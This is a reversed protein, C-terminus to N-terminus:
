KIINNVSYVLVDNNIFNAEGEKLDEIKNLFNAPFITGKQIDGTNILIDYFEPGYISSNGYFIANEAENKIKFKKLNNFNFLFSDPDKNWGGNSKFSKSTYGGFNYGDNTKFLTITPGKIDVKQHFDNTRNGDRSMQYILNLNCNGGILKKLKNITITEESVEETTDDEINNKNNNDKNKNNFNITDYNESNNDINNDEYTIEESKDDKNNNDTMRCSCSDLNSYENIESDLKKFDLDIYKIKNFKMYNKKVLNINNEKRKYISYYNDKLILNSYKYKINKYDKGYFHFNKENKNKEGNENNNKNLSGDDFDSDESYDLDKKNIENFTKNNNKKQQFDNKADENDSNLYTDDKYGNFKVKRKKKDVKIINDRSKYRNLKKMKNKHNILAELEKIKKEYKKIIDINMNLQFALSCIRINQERIIRDQNDIRKNLNIFENQFTKNKIKLIFIIEKLKQSPLSIKLNIENDLINIEFKKNSILSSIEDYIDKLTECILFYRNMKNIEDFSYQSEYIENNDVLNVNFTIYSSYLIYKLIYNKNEHNFNITRSIIEEENTPGPADM